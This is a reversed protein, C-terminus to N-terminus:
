AVMIFKYERLFEKIEERTTNPNYDDSLKCLNTLFYEIGYIYEIKDEYTYYEGCRISSSKERYASMHVEGKSADFALKTVTWGKFKITDGPM